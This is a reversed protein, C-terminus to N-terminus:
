IWTNFEKVSLAHQTIAPFPGIEPVATIVSNTSFNLYPKPNWIM